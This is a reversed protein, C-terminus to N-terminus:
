ILMVIHKIFLLLSIVTLSLKSYVIEGLDCVTDSVSLANGYVMYTPGKNTISKKTISSNDLHPTQKTSELRCVRCKDPALKLQWTDAWSTLSDIAKM